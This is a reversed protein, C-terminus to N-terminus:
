IIFFLTVFTALSLLFVFLLQNSKTEMYLTYHTPNLPGRVFFPPQIYLSQPDITTISHDCEINYIVNARFRLEERVDGESLMVMIGREGDGDIHAVATGNWSAVCFSGTSKSDDHGVVPYKQCMSAVGPQACASEAGPETNPCATPLSGCVSFTWLDWDIGNWTSNLEIPGSSCELLNFYTSRSLFSAYVLPFRPSSHNFSTCPSFFPNAIKGTKHPLIFLPWNQLGLSVLLALCKM